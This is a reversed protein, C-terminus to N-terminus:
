HWPPPDSAPFSDALIQDIQNETLNERMWKSERVCEKPGKFGSSLPLLMRELTLMDRRADVQLGSKGM